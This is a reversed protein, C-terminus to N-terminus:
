EAHVGNVDADGVEFVPPGDRGPQPEVGGAM